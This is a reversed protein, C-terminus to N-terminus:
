LGGRAMDRIQEAAVKGAFGCNFLHEERLSKMDTPDSRLAEQTAEALQPLEDSRLCVAIQPLIEQEWVKPPQGTHRRIHEYELSVHTQLTDAFVVVPKEFAFVFDFIVGSVDSVMVDAQLM